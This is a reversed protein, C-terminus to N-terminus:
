DRKYVAEPDDDSLGLFALIRMRRRVPIFRGKELNGVDEVTVHAGAAVDVQRLEQCVRALKAKMGKSVGPAVFVEMGGQQM